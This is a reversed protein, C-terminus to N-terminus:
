RETQLASLNLSGTTPPRRDLTTATKTGVLAFSGDSLEFIDPCDSLCDRSREGANAEGDSAAEGPGVWKM